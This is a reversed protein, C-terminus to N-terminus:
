GRFEPCLSATDRTIPVHVKQKRQSRRRPLSQQPAKLSLPSLLLSWAWASGQILQLRPSLLLLLLDLWIGLLFGRPPGVEGLHFPTWVMEM